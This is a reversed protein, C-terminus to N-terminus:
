RIFQLYIVMGILLYVFLNGWFQRRMFILYNALLFSLPIALLILMEQSASPVLLLVLMSIIFIVFFIQFYKRSSVKKEDMQAVLFFSGVLTLFILLGLYIKIPLAADLLSVPSMVNQVITNGLLPLSDTLFYFSFTYLWPLLLGIIPLVFNRWEPNKRILMFGIWVMPFFFILNFYFLSGLGIFFGSDFANSNVQDKEYAAFIRNAALLLFLAGFYVPHLCHLATVGSTILVFTISPLFSRVRIFSYSTNLKLIFFALLVVLVMALINSGLVSVSGLRAFFQYLPMQEEGSSYSFLEPNLYARFWLGTVILPITVFHIAQNNKIFRLIM